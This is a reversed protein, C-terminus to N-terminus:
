GEEQEVERAPSQEPARSDTPADDVELAACAAELANLERRWTALNAQAKNVRGRLEARQAILTAGIGAHEGADEQHAQAAGQVPAQTLSASPVGATGVYVGNEIDAQEARAAAQKARAEVAEDDTRDRILNRIYDGYGAVAGKKSGADTLGELTVSTEGIGYPLNLSKTISTPTPQETDATEWLKMDSQMISQIEEVTLSKM